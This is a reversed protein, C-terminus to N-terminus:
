EAAIPADRTAGGIIERDEACRGSALLCGGRTAQPGLDEEEVGVVAGSQDFAATGMPMHVRARECVHPFRRLM